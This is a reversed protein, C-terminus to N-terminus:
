GFLLSPSSFLRLVPTKAISASSGSPPLFFTSIKKKHLRRASLAFCFFFGCDLWTSLSCDYPFPSQLLSLQLLQLDDKSSPLSLPSAPVTKISMRSRRTVAFCSCSSFSLAEYGTTVTKTNHPLSVSSHFGSHTFSSERRQDLPILPSSVIYGM